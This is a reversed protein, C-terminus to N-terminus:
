DAQTGNLQQEHEELENEKDDQTENLQGDETEDEEDDDDEADTVISSEMLCRGISTCPDKCEAPCIDVTVFKLVSVCNTHLDNCPDLINNTLEKDPVDQAAIQQFLAIGSSGDKNWHWGVVNPTVFALVVLVVSIPLAQYVLRRVGM